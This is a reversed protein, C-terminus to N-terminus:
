SITVEVTQAVTAVELTFNLRVQAANGLQVDEYNQTRFGPLSASVTNRGPLLSVLTYAGAETTIATTVVGTANNTGKISVGLILAGTPDAVTGSITANSSQGFVPTSLVLWVLAAALLRQTTM